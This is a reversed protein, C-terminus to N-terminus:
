RMGGILSSFGWKKNLLIQATKANVYTRTVRQKKILMLQKDATSYCNKYIKQAIKGRKVTRPSLCSSQPSLARREKQENSMVRQNTM